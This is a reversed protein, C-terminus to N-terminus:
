NDTWELCMEQCTQSLAAEIRLAEVSLALALNMISQSNLPKEMRQYFQELTVVM